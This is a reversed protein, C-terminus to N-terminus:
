VAYALTAVSIEVDLGNFAKACAELTAGTTTVDDVLLIHKHDVFDPQSITFVDKVNEWRDIKSKKTQTETYSTRAIAHPLVPKLLVEAIGKAICYSQNYGRRKLKKPHLPVPCIVDIEKAESTKIIERGLYRGFQIGVEQKGKYKLEHLLHQVKGGKEFWYLAIGAKIKIRGWFIQEVMNHKGFVFTTKPLNVMCNTCVLHEGKVLPNPCLLCVKPYFLFLLDSFAAKLNM